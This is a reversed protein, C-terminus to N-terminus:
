MCIIYMNMSDRSIAHPMEPFTIERVTKRTCILLFPLLDSTRNITNDTASLKYKNDLMNLLIRGVIEFYTKRPPCNDQDM